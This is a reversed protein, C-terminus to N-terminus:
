LEVAKETFLRLVIGIVSVIITMIEAQDPSLMFDGFGFYGAVAIVLSLIFFWFTKSAYFKKM